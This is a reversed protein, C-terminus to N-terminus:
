GAHAVEPPPPAHHPLVKTRRWHGFVYYGVTLVVSVASGAPYAWWVAEGGIDPRALAYFGIRGGYLSLFMIILPPVVVGYARM